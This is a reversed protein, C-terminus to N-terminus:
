LDNVRTLAGIEASFYRLAGLIDVWIIEADGTRYTINLTPNLAHVIFICFNHGLLCLADM